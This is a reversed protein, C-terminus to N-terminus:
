FFFFLFLFTVQWDRSFLCAVIDRGVIPIWGCAITWFQQPISESHPLHIESDSNGSGSPEFGPEDPTLMIQSRKSSSMLSMEFDESTHITSTAGSPSSSEILDMLDSDAKFFSFFLVCNVVLLIM